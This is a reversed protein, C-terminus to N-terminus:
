KWNNFFTFHWPAPCDGDDYNCGPTNCGKGQMPL